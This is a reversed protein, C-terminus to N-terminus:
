RSVMTPSSIREVVNVQFVTPHRCLIMLDKKKKGKVEKSVPKIPVVSKELGVNQKKKHPVESVERSTKRKRRVHPSGAVDEEVPIVGKQKKKKSTEESIKRRHRSSGVNTEASVGVQKGADANPVIQKASQREKDVPLSM